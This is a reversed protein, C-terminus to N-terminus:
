ARPLVLSELLKAKIEYPLTSAALRDACVIAANAREALGVPRQDQNIQLHAGVTKLVHVVPMRSSGVSLREM